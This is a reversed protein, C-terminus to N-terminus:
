SVTYEVIFEFNSSSGSGPTRDVTDDVGSEAARSRARYHGQVDTSFDDVSGCSAFYEFLIM